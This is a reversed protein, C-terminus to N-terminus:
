IKKMCVENVWMLRAGGGEMFTEGHQLLSIYLILSLFIFVLITCGYGDKQDMPSVSSSMAVIVYVHSVM